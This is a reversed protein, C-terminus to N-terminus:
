KEYDAGVVAPPSTVAPEKKSEATASPDKKPEVTSPNKAPDAAPLKAVPPDANKTDSGGKLFADGKGGKLKSTLDKAINARCLFLLAFCTNIDAKIEEKSNASNGWSGNAQQSRI